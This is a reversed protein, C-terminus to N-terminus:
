IVKRKSKGQQSTATRLLKDDLIKAEQEKITANRNQVQQNYKGIAGQQRIQAVGVAASIFPAAPAVFGM